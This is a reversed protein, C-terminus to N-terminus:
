LWTCVRNVYLISGGSSPVQHGEEDLGVLDPIAKDDGSMQTQVVLASPLALNAQRAYRLFAHRATLSRNLIYNLAETALNEPHTSLRAALYGFLSDSQM